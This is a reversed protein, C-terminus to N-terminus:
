SPVEGAAFRAPEVKTGPPLASPRVLVRSGEVRVEYTAIRETYPPPSQGDEPRYQYGHWPCTICGDIIEGEGLPGNQHACVNSVASVKGEYRFVAIREMARICVVRARKEPIEAIDCVDVWERNERAIAGAGDRRVERLGALLHLGAILVVGTGLLAWGLDPREGQLPGFAVHFVVGLYAVYVLMHLIKWIPPWLNVLWYDHSTAAMLFLIVLAGVGFLEFPVGTGASHLILSVLPNMSSFGHYYLLVLGGHLLAVLFTTVGLHRRNYLLPLFRDDLRALPGIALVVHLMVMACAGLARIMLVMPDPASAAFLMGTGVFVGLFLLVATVMVGDYVRKHRNWGISTYHATM